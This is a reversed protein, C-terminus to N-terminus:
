RAQGISVRSSRSVKGVRHSEGGRFQRAAICSRRAAYLRCNAARDECAERPRFIWTSLRCDVHGVSKISGSLKGALAVAVGCRGRSRRMARQGLGHVCWFMVSGGQM